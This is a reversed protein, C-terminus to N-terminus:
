LWEASLPKRPPIRRYKYKPTGLMLGGCVVHGEPVHLARQLPQYSAAAATLFGAWCVGLGRAEAALQLFTLAIAADERNFPHVAPATVVVLTPAGRLIMDYGQEWLGIAPAAYADQSERAWNVVEAAIARVKAADPAVIWHLLQSNMATPSRRAVDLLADMTARDVPESKFERVSRRSAMLGDIQMATPLDRAAPPMPELPLGQLSLAETPCVAVCHGCQYCFAGPIEEPYSGKGNKLVGAACVAACLGDKACRERDVVFKSM